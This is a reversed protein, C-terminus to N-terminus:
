VILWEGEERWSAYSQQPLHNCHLKTAHLCQSYDGSYVYEFPIQWFGSDSHLKSFVKTESLQAHTDDVKPLPNFQPLM